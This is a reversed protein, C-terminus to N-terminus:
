QLKLIAREKVRVFQVIYKDNHTRLAVGSSSLVRQRLLINQHLNTVVIIWSGGLGVNVAVVYRFILHFVDQIPGHLVTGPLVANPNGDSLCRCPTIKTHDVHGIL